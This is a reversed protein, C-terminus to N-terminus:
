TLLQIRSHIHHRVEYKVEFDTPGPKLLLRKANQSTKVGAPGLPFPEPGVIDSVPDDCTMKVPDFVKANCTPCPM